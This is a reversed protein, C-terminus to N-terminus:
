KLIDKLKKKSFTFIYLRFILSVFNRGFNTQEIENLMKYRNGDLKKLELYDVNFISFDQKLIESREKRRTFTGEASASIGDLYYVSLVNHVAKYSARNIALAEIFFKWDSVIKLKEDYLGVKDFLDKKIIISQHALTENYLYSFQIEDPHSFIESDLGHVIKIDFALIQTGDLYNISNKLVTNDILHDGSNLFLLYEGTSLQIGKNLAHYIGNDKESIWKTIKSEYKKIVECSNDSSGGDVVVFEFDIFSQSVVSEITKQLGSANNYNITIISLKQQM